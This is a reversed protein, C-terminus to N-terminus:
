GMSCIKRFNTQSSCKSIYKESYVETELEAVLKEPLRYTISRTSEKKPTHIQRNTSVINETM